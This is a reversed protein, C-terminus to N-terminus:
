EIVSPLDFLIGQMQPYAKLLAAILAGQGGGVDVVMSIGTFSYASMVAAVSQQTLKAMGENFTEAAEPNEGLFEWFDMGFVHDFVPKGTRVSHELGGWARWWWESGWMTALARVSDSVGTELPQALPTLEFNGDENAAFIGFSALARLLRYLSRPHAGVSRALDDSSRPGDKLSDAIGLKAAVHILQAVRYGEIMQRLAMSPSPHDTAHLNSETSM